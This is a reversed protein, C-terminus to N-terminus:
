GTAAQTLAARVRGVPGKVAYAEALAGAEGEDPSGSWVSVDLNRKIPVLQQMTAIYDASEAIKARLDSDTVVILRQGQSFGGSPARRVTRVIREITERSVPAADYHRVMRRRRLIDAFEM